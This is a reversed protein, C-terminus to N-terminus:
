GEGPPHAAGGAQRLLFSEVTRAFEDPREFHAAHGAGDIVALESARIRRQMSQAAAVYKSDLAGAILLTPADIEGLRHIVAETAAAGAGRLSNALGGPVNSLRQARLGELAARPMAAQSSWLPLTEWRDVFAEMGEREIFEALEADARTRAQRAARDDIGASTSELLLAALRSPQNLAFQLAARGGLSYGLMAVRDLGLVDLLRALDGALLLLAYRWPDPPASSGGHGPLDVAITTYRPHLRAILDKWTTASGTFGHLLVLAPGQGDLEVHLSLGDGVDIDRHEIM